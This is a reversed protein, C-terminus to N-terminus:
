LGGVGIGDSWAPSCARRKNDSSLVSYSAKALVLAGRECESPNSLVPSIGEFISVSIGVNASDEFTCLRAEIFSARKCRSRSLSLKVGGGVGRGVVGPGVGVGVKSGVKEGVKKGVNSGVGSGVGDGESSGVESGVHHSRLSQTVSILSSSFRRAPERGVSNPSRTLKVPM